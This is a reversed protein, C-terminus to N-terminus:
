ALDLERALVRRAVERIVTHHNRSYARLREFAQDPGIDHRAVLFGKAQEIIVRSRLATNLQEVRTEASELEERRLSRRLNCVVGRVGPDDLLNTLAAEAWVWGEESLVRVELAPHAGPQAVVEEMFRALAPREEPHLLPVVSTGVISDAWGFLQEVAPSAYTVVADSRLVLAADTSRELLPQLATGLNTSVGVIGVLIGERYLGSDTVLAPFMNGAKDRVPFGGSWTVGNRLAAMIEEADPAAVPPVTLDRINRGRAEDPTWGYLAEAAHNWVLVVGEPDTVILAQGLSELIEAPEFPTVADDAM